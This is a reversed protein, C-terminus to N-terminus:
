FLFFCPDFIGLILFGPDFIGLNLFGPILYGEFLLFVLRPNLERHQFFGPDLIEVILFEWSLFFDPILCGLPLLKGDGFGRGMGM